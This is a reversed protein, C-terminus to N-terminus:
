RAEAAATDRKTQRLWMEYEARPLARVHAVMEAHNRGCLEACQGRYVAPEDIRFWTRNTYGPVADAKGGLEPIWWSHAVDVSVIELEVVTAVPVVLEEYVRLGDPYEFSWIYQQGTVEIRLPRTGEGIIGANAAKAPPPTTISDLKIFTIATLVVLLLTAAMTWGIELRTNGHIQAAVRGRGHRYRVLSYVLTGEVAVFVAIAVAFVIKYLDDIADANPSGGSEPTFLDARAMSALLLFVAATAAVVLGARAGSRHM